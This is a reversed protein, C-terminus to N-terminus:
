NEKKYAMIEIDAGHFGAAEAEVLLTMILRAVDLLGEPGEGDNLTITLMSRRASVFTEKTYIIANEEDGVAM